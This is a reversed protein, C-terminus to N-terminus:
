RVTGSNTAGPWGTDAYVLPDLIQEQTEVVRIHTGLIYGNRRHNNDCQGVFNSGFGDMIKQTIMNVTLGFCVCVTLLSWMGYYEERTSSM